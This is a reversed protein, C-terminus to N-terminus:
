TGASKIALPISGQDQLDHGTVISVFIEAILPYSSRKFNTKKSVSVFSNIKQNIRRYPWKITQKRVPELRVWGLSRGFYRILIM